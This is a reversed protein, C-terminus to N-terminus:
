PIARIRSISTALPIWLWVRPTISILWPQRGATAPLPVAPDTNITGNAVKRIVSNYTDAIYLNGGSDVAVGFPADLLAQTAPGGNGTFGWKGTGAVTTIVGSAVTVKRIVNSYTDAIYINGGSDVAVGQPSNLRASTAPGGDGSYGARGNGAVATLTGSGDLKFVFNDSCFYVNGSADVAVAVPPPLTVSLASSPTIPLGGGGAVTSILYQQAWLAGSAFLLGLGARLGKKM